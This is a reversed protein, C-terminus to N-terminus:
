ICSLSFKSLGVGRIQGVKHMAIEQALQNIAEAHEMERFESKEHLSQVEAALQANQRKLEMFGM